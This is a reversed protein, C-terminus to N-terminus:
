TRRSSLASGIVCGPQKGGRVLSKGGIGGGFGFGEGFGGTKRSPGHGMSVIAPDNLPSKTNPMSTYNANGVAYILGVISVRVLRTFAGHEPAEAM